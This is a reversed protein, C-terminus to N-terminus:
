RAPGPVETARGPASSGPPDRAMAAAPFRPYQSARQEPRACETRKVHAPYRNLSAEGLILDGTNDPARQTLYFKVASSVSESMNWLSARCNGAERKVRSCRRRCQPRAHIVGM